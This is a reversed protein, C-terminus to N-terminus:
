LKKRENELEALAQRAQEKSPARGHWEHRHEMFSVGKGPVVKCIIAKPKGKIKKAKEVATIFKAIDHGDIEQVHWNFAEYKKRLPELPMVSETKGSIQIGNRDIIFILNDLKYKAALMIAEWTQGEDHEGDSTICYVAWNKKDLKGALAAGTAVSVGQGLPGSSSELSPMDKYSPHGQLKSGLKRLTTLEKEPFYGALAMAAYRAPCIHGNSLYLRDREEWLPKKPNHKLIHFYLAAFIDAMGLSGAPHGSGAEALMKIINQRITNALIRLKRIKAKSVMKKQTKRSFNPSERAQKNKNNKSSERATIM